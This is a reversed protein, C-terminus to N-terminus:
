RAAISGGPALSCHVPCFCNCGLWWAKLLRVIELTPEFAAPKQVFSNAGVEYARQIDSPQASSSFIIVVIHKLSPQQRLWCLVELGTLRPLKLDLLIICPLPHKARDAFDGVGSLYDVAMQGDTVTHLPNPIHAHKFAFRVLIIDAEEDEAYLIAPLSNSTAGTIM